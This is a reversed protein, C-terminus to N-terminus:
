SSPRASSAAATSTAADRARPPGPDLKASRPLHRGRGGREANRGCTAPEAREDGRRRDAAEGAPQRHLERADRVRALVPRVERELEEDGHQEAADRRREPGRGSDGPEREDGAGGAHEPRQFADLRRAEVRHERRQEEEGHEREAAFPDDRQHPSEDRSVDSGGTRRAVVSTETGAARSGTCSGGIRTASDSVLRKPSSTAASETDSSSTAPSTHASIPGFPEPM